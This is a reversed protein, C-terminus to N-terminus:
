FAVEPPIFTAERKRKNEATKVTQKELKEQWKNSSKKKLSM